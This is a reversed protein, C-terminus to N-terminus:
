THSNRTTFDTAIGCINHICVIICTLEMWIWISVINDLNVMKLIDRTFDNFVYNFPRHYAFTEKANNSTTDMIRKYWHVCDTWKLVNLWIEKWLWKAWEIIKNLPEVRTQNSIPLKTLSKEMYIHIVIVHLM